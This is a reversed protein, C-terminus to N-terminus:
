PRPSSSALRYLVSGKGDVAFAREFVFGLKELVRRSALNRPRTFGVLTPFGLNTFAHDIVASGMETAYGHSWLASRVVYGIEVEPKGDLKWRHIGCRGVFAGNPDRFVWVGFGHDQWHALRWDLWERTEAATMKPTVIRRDRHLEVLDAFDAEVLPLGRLRVTVLEAM